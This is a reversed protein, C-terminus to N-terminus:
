PHRRARARGHGHGRACAAARPHFAGADLSSGPEGTTMWESLALGIAPGTQIGLSNLGTAIWLNDTGAARGLVPEHDVSHTDPGHVMQKIGVDGLQPILSMASLLGAEMKDTSAEYLEHSADARM